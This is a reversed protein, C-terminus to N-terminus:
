TLSRVASNLAPTYSTMENLINTPLSVLPNNILNLSTTLSLGKFLGIPLTRLKNSMLSVFTLAPLGQFLDAPLTTLGSGNNNFTIRLSTLSTLGAFDSRRPPRDGFNPSFGSTTQLSTIAALDAATIDACATKGSVKAIIVTQVVFTRDCVSVSPNAGQANVTIAVTATDTGSTNTATITYTAAEAAADPAGSIIGTSTDFMLGNAIAPMISYSAVAGGTSTITIDAIATGAIATVAAPTISIIPAAVAAVNVSVMFTQTVTQEATDTATVTITATGIAVPTVTITSGSVGVTAINTDGSMVSFTLTDGTDSFKDAVNVTQPSGNVVLDTIDAITGVTTPVAANITTGTPLRIANRPVDAFLSAPLSAPLPNGSLNLTTLSTLGAFIGSPM